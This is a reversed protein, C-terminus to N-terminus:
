ENSFGGITSSETTNVGFLGIFQDLDLPNLGGPGGTPVILVEMGQLVKAMELAVAKDAGVAQMAENKLETRRAEAIQVLLDAEARKVRIYLDREADKEVKYAEGEALTVKVNAEGEETIKQLQANETAAKGESINKFVLQDQLKKQEINHQIEESYKFYRILVQHVEMGYEALQEDLLVRARDSKEVRLPSNYFNETTLEGLIEKLKPEAKPIIGEHLFSDGPGLTDILKFPEVIKYLISVDVDVHFGDSTQIKIASRDTLNLVQVHNPFRHIKEFGFPMRWRLGPGYVEERIGEASFIGINTQKIGLENPRIYTFCTQIIVVSVVILLAVAIFFWGVGKPIKIPPKFKITPKGGIIEPKNPSM